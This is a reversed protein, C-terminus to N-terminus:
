AVSAWTKDAQISIGAPRANSHDLVGAMFGAMSARTILASPGYATDSIGSAVGLEYLNTIADYTTKTVNGLDTYPSGIKKTEDKNPTSDDDEVPVVKSPTYGYVMTKSEMMPTMKDMLRSIFLAMQGRTVSDAPSYTTASTGMTIGLDALQNIATQSEMSLDGVDTFGADDPDSVVEIGVLGALRTLFLAMHERTVSMLPSYTTASTGKTIGYYAICDIDGANAHSMPVDEFGSSPAMGCADFTAKYDAKPDDAAAVPVAVLVSAMMALVTLVAVRRRFRSFTAFM